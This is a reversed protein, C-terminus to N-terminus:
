LVTTQPTMILNMIFDMLSGDNMQVVFILDTYKPLMATVNENSCQTSYLM